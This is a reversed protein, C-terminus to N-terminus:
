AASTSEVDRIEKFLRRMLEPDKKGPSSEIGSCLDIGWPRATTVAANVNDPGLGGAILVREGALREVLAPDNLSAVNWGEGSGGYLTPHRSDIIFGWLGLDLWGDFAEVSLRDNIRFAKVGREGVSALDDPTEDGHFQLLDLGVRDSLEVAQHVPMNVFVGTWLPARGDNGQPKVEAVLRAASEPDIYRPSKSFFNLGILDAGLEIALRAEEVTGVGCVKVRPRYGSVSVEASASRSM